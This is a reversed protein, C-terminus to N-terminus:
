ASRMRRLRLSLELLFRDDHSDLRRGTLAEIKRLRYMLSHRNLFLSRAAQSTNGNERLFTELTELLGRSTDQDYAEIPALVADATQRAAEDGALADLMLFPGLAEADAVAGAGDLARAVRLAREARRVGEAIETLMFEGEAIGCSAAGQGLSEVADRALTGPRLSPPADPPVLVLVRNGRRSAQLGALAGQRRLRRALEDLADESATEGEALMVRYPRAATYGLLAAKTALDADDAPAGSAIEWLFDGRARAEADAVARRRLMEIAVAVAAHALAHREVILPDVRQDDGAALVYGLTSGQAVAAVSLGAPLCADEVEGHWQVDTHDREERVAALAGPELAHAEAPQAALAQDGLRAAAIPGHAIVALGADVILVPKDVIAECAEAIADLGERALLADAFGAPLQDGADLTAAYRASLLRDTLARLVDAFRVEWPLELIPMVYKDGLARVDEPVSALPADAGVAVVLAAAGAAGVDGALVRLRAEDYGLGTTLVFDGPSVFDEVPGEIVTMWRVRRADLGAGGAVLTADALPPIQLCSRVTPAYPDGADERPVAPGRSSAGGSVAM